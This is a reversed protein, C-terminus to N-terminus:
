PVVQGYQVRLHIPGLAMRRLHNRGWDTLAALAQPDRAGRRLVTLTPWAPDDCGGARAPGDPGAPRDAPLSPSGCRWHTIAAAIVQRGQGVVVAVALACNHVQCADYMVEGGPLVRAEGPVQDFVEIFRDALLPHRQRLAGM